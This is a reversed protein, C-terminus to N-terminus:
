SVRKIFFSPNAGITVPITGTNVVTLRDYDCCCNKIATNAGVNFFEGVAAPTAEMRTEALTEGGIAINLQVPGPTTGTPVGVNGNFIAEYIGNAKMKVSSTGPRHCEGNGTHLVVTDFTIAQGPQITQATTNSLIIM